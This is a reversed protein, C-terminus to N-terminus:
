KKPMSAELRKLIERTFDKTEKSLNFRFAPVLGKSKTRYEVSQELDMRTTCSGTATLDIHLDSYFAKAKMRLGITKNQELETVRTFMTNDEPETNDFDDETIPDTQPMTEGGCIARWVLEVPYNYYTTRKASQKM